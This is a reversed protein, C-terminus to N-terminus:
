SFHRNPPTPLGLHGRLTTSEYEKRFAGRRQLEPVVMDVFDRLGRPALPSLITFGDCARDAVWEEMQDAIQGPTGKFLPSGISPLVREYTQRITLKDRRMMDVIYRRLSSGALVEDAVEPVPGDIPLGALDHVLMKSLYHVGLAPSILSQLEQYLEEAEAATRGVFVSIGPLIRLTEPARGYKAMRGKIDAYATQCDQKTSGAGFLADAYRAALEMGPSSQGAMFVVPRGQPTRAVNLPGKVKFHKGVHDIPRVRTPDLFQGTSKNQVFADDAWSDWLDVVVEYFEQAREYRDPRAMHADLGFNLADGANSATVLNWGARGKSIHDLSAFRRAVHWPEDFTTTATAVVGIHKTVMSVASLMTTPEFGAPRASPFNAAFLEPRDMDRVGNGDALFIGDLKGREAIQALEIVADLNMVSNDFSSAHRWGGLHGGVVSPIAVLNMMRAVRDKGNAGAAM